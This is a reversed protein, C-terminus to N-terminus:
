KPFKIGDPKLQPIDFKEGEFEVYRITDNYKYIKVGGLEEVDYSFKWMTDVWTSKKPIFEMAKLAEFIGLATKIKIKRNEDNVRDYKPLSEGFKNFSKIGPTSINVWPKNKLPVIAEDFSELYGIIQFDKKRPGIIRVRGDYDLVLSQRLKLSQKLNLFQQTNM